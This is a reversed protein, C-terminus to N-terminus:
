QVREFGHEFQEFYMSTHTRYQKLTHIWLVHEFNNLLTNFAGALYVPLHYVWRFGPTWDTLSRRRRLSKSNHEECRMSVILSRLYKPSQSFILCPPSGGERTVPLSFHSLPLFFPFSLSTTLDGYEYITSKTDVKEVGGGELLNLILRKWPKYNLNKNKKRWHHIEKILM